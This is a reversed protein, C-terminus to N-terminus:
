WSLLGPQPRPAGEEGQPGAPRIRAYPAAPPCPTSSPDQSGPELCPSSPPLRLQQSPRVRSAELLGPTVASVTVATQPM